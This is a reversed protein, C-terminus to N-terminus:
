RTTTACRSWSTARASVSSDDVPGFWGEDIAEDRTRVWATRWAPGAVQGRGARAPRPRRLAASVAGRWGARVRGAMLIPEDEAIIQHETPVDIMGHDGTIVLRVDDPLAARLRECM